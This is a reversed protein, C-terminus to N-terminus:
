SYKSRLHNIYKIINKFNNLSYNIKEYKYTHKIVYSVIENYKIENNLYKKHAVNNLIMFKIQQKHNTSRLKNLYKFIKFRNDNKTELIFNSHDIIKNEKTNLKIKYFKLLPSALTLLMDNYFANVSIISNKYIIVSHVYASKSILFDIKKLDINYIFSLEFIELVKNMFNSSDILNNVGMNWKPHSLVKNKKVNELNIKKDFYFPGGSATIYIKNINSDKTNSNILSFHESDLPFFNNGTKVIKSQLINGGAIILEKNAIAFTCNSNHSILIDIYELSLSGYDLFYVLNFKQKLYKLFKARSFKDSLIFTNKISYNNKQINILKHNDFCSAGDIPINRKSTFNLLKKGLKGTSGIILIKFSNRM